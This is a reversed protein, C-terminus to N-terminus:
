PQRNITLDTIRLRHRKGLRKTRKRTALWIVGGLAASTLAVHGTLSWDNEGTAIEDGISFLGWGGGFTWISNSIAKGTQQIQYFRLADIQSLQVDNANSFQVAQNEYHLELITGRRWIKDSGLRYTIEQGIYFKTTKSSRTKELILIKQAHIYGGCFLMLLIGLRSYYFM